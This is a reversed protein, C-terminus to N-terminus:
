RLCRFVDREIIELASRGTLEGTTPIECTSGQFGAPCQCQFTNGTNACSYFYPDSSHNLFNRSM